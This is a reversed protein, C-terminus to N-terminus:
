GSKHLKKLAAVGVFVGNPDTVAVCDTSNKAMIEAARAEPENGKIMVLPGMFELIPASARSKFNQLLQDGSVIGVMEGELQVFAHTCNNVVLYEIADFVSTKSDLTPAPAAIKEISSM